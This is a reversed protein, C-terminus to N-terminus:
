LLTLLHKAHEKELISLVRIASNRVDLQQGNDNVAVQSSWGQCSCTGTIKMEESTSTRVHLRHHSSVSILQEEVTIM